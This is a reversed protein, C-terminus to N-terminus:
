QLPVSLPHRNKPRTEPQPKAEVYPPRDLSDDLRPDHTKQLVERLQASLKQQLAQSEPQYAINHLQDPDKSIDYLEEQPRQGFTNEYFVKTAPDTRHTVIWAKTLSNDMDRFPSEWLNEYNAVFAADPGENDSGIGFPDGWPWREPKFNHIYLHTQTRIARSPYPVNGPRATAYHRERGYIAFNRQPDVTGSNPSLLQPLLSVGDVATPTPVGAVELFTPALDMLNVFDDVTRGPQIHGPWRVILPAHSGLDYLQTKGHPLGPTGNDGTLALLTNQARGAKELEETFIGVMLDLAQVEGLYDAVDTRVEPVDPLYAPLKGKLSDPTIGWLAEGSSSAYPRHTNIPGFIFFFPKDAPCANLVRVISERTQAIVANRRQGREEPTKGEAVHLGYRLYGKISVTSAAPLNPSFHITKFAKATAYGAESLLQPFHPLVALPDPHSKWDGGNLFASSGCRWFYSGTLLAGRSPTCQPCSYFANNFRVGSQAVKDINPTKVIDCPSPHKSDAYCGAHRGWDDAFFLVINPKAETALLAATATHLFLLALGLQSLRFPPRLACSYSDV